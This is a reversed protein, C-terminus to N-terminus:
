NPLKIHFYPIIYQTISVSNLYYPNKSFGFKIGTLFYTMLYLLGFILVILLIQKKNISLVNRKKIVFYSVIVAPLLIAAAVIKSNLPVFLAFLLLALLFTSIIHIIKKDKEM